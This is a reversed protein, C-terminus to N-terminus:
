TTDNVKYNCRAWHFYRHLVIGAAVSVNLSAMGGGHQSIRIFGDCVSMQKTTMGSGENGMMFAVGGSSSSISSFPDDYELNLSSEDIEVGLIRVPHHHHHHHASSSENENEAVDNNNGGICCKIHAICEHLKDFKVIKLKGRRPAAIDDPPPLLLMGPIDSGEVLEFDFQKQGVVFITHVGYAVAIQLLKRINQRKSINTIILYATPSCHHIRSNNSKIPRNQTSSSSSSTTDDHASNSVDDDHIITDM